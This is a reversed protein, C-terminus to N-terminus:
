LRGLIREFVDAVVGRSAYVKYDRDFEPAVNEAIYDSLIQAVDLVNQENITKGKMFDGAKEFAVPKISIAGAFMKMERVYDGDMELGLAVGIRSITVKKRSGLKVFASQFAPVPVLFRIFAENPELITKGPRLIVDTVPVIRTGNPSAIEVKADYLYMVPILDGAPSANGLNGGITGNNRIQLSGVDAAADMLAPLYERVIPDHEMQTMTCYAGVSITDGQKEIMKLEPIHGLYCLADPKVAGSHLRIVFDTGGGVIKSEPTLAALSAPLEALTKPAYSRMM